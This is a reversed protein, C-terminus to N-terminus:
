SRSTPTASKERAKKCDVAPHSLSCQACAHTYRCQTSSLPCSGRNFRLCLEDSSPKTYPKVRYAARAPSQISLLACSASDHNAGSCHRCSRGPPTSMVSGLVTSAMLSPSLEAWPHPSGAAKQQRFLKDYSRWGNGGHKQALLIVLQAYGVLNRTHYDNNM